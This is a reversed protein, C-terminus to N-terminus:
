RLVYQMRVPSGERLLEVDFASRNRLEAYAGLVADPRNLLVGNVARIVDGNRLGASALPSRAGFRVQYGNVKGGEVAPLVRTALLEPTPEAFMAEVQARDLTVTGGTIQAVRPPTAQSGGMSADISLVRRQGRGDQLLVRDREIELIAGCVLVDGIAATRERGEEHIAARSLSRDAEVRTGLLQAGTCPLWSHEAATADRANLARRLSSERPVAAGAAEPEAPAPPVNVWPQPDEMAWLGALILLSVLLSLSFAARVM